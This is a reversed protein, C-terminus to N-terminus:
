WLDTTINRSVTDGLLSMAGAGCKGSRSVIAINRPLYHADSEQLIWSTHCTPIYRKQLIYDGVSNDTVIPMELWVLDRNVGKGELM